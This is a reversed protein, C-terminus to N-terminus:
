FWKFDRNLLNKLEQNFPQFYENLREKIESPPSSYSNAYVKELDDIIPTDLELFGFLEELFKKPRHELDHYDIILIQEKPFVSFWNKLQAAYQGHLLYRSTNWTDLTRFLPVNDGHLSMAEVAQELNAVSFAEELSRQEDKVRKVQHHYHSIARETPNRLSAILKVKPFTAKIRAPSDPHSIYSPSADGMLLQEPSLGHQRSYEARGTFLSLYWGWSKQYPKPPKSFFNVEKPRRPVVQPHRQLYDYIASTAAKMAGIIIFDPGVGNQIIQETSCSKCDIQGISVRDANSFVAKIILSQENLLTPLNLIQRFGFKVNQKEILEGFRQILGPREIDTPLEGILQNDLFVEVAIVPLHKGIVWGSLELRGKRDIITGASPKVIRHSHFLDHNIAFNDVHAIISVSQEALDPFNSTV